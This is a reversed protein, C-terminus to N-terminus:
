DLKSIIRRNKMCHRCLTTKRLKGFDTLKLAHCKYLHVKTGFKTCYVEVDTDSDGDEGEKARCGGAVVEKHKLGIRQRQDWIRGLFLGLTFVCGLVIIMAPWCLLMGENPSPGIASQVADTGFSM